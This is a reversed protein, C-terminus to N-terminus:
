AHIIICTLNSNFHVRGDKQTSCKNRLLDLMDARIVPTFSQYFHDKATIFNLLREGLQSNPSFCETIEFTNPIAHQEYKLGRNKLCTIVEASSRYETIYEDCLEKSYKKWLIDTGCNASEIIIMLKGDKKLLSHYFKITDDLNDVYYMMQIMHIFDFKKKGGKAKVQKEFDESRMLHWTFPIKQLKPTKAVLAKFNDSLETSGEIIDATIPVGPFTSELLMLMQVDVEGGGSGVGLVDLSSKNEGTRKFHAPLIDLVLQLVAEHEGSHELFFQFSQISSGEYCTKRGEAAM